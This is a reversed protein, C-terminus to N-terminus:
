TWQRPCHTDILSSGEPSAPPERTLYKLFVFFLLLLVAFIAAELMWHRLRRMGRKSERKHSRKSVADSAAASGAGYFRHRCKRCRYPQRHLPSYFRDFWKHHHSRRVEPSGCQPCLL